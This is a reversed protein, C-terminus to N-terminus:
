ILGHRAAIAAAERRNSAGLKGLVNGVHREVTKASIFLRAAIEPNTLRQALLGLIERERRTLEIGTSGTGTQEPGLIPWPAASAQGRPTSTGSAEWIAAVREAGLIGEATICAIAVAEQLTWLSGARRAAALADPGLARGVQALCADALARDLPWMTAGTRADVTDAAGILRAAVTGHGREAAAAAMAWLLRALFAEDRITWSLTIAELFCAAAGAVDGERLRAYGLGCLPHSRAWAGGPVRAAEIAEEYRAIALPLKGAMLTIDALNGLALAVMLPAAALETELTRFGRAAEEALAAARDLEGQRLALTGRNLLAEALRFADDAERALALGEDLLAEAVAFEGQYMALFGAWGRTRSRMATPVGDDRAMARTLWARGESLQGFTLWVNPLAASLTALSLADGEAVFWGLAQRLNDMEPGLWPLWATDGPVSHHLDLTIALDRFYTAHRARTAAEESGEVLRDLGFERITELLGFRPPGATAAGPHVLSQDVLAEIRELTTPLPLGCVAAAAELTWGGAFVALRRFVVQEEPALLAYSWAIADQITRHRAPADRPGAGPVPVRQGLLALMAQPSLARTRAAALELALPLGDLRRCIEAVAGANQETLRFHPAAGRARQVFLAVAPAEGVADRRVAEPHPVALPPVPLVQEGRLQLPARGTALVQLAPCSALLTGILIATAALLHECNDVLLLTQRPRLRAVLEDAVSTDPALALDLAAAVTAPALGPDALPALDVWVVGDAFADAVNHAIALALRTKGVGGPGTLTLLPVADALLFARAAAIDAERGILRTRPLPLTGPSLASTSLAM